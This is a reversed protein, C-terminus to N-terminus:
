GRLFCAIIGSLEENANILRCDSNPVLFAKYNYHKCPKITPNVAKCAPPWQNLDLIAWDYGWIQCSFLGIKRAIVVGSGLGPLLLAVPKVVLMIKKIREPLGSM